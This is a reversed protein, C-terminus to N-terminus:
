KETNKSFDTVIRLFKSMLPIYTALFAFYAVWGVARKNKEPIRIGAMIGIAFLCIKILALDKWSSKQLYKDACSFLCKM